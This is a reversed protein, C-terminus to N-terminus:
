AAFTAGPAKMRRRRRLGVGAAAAIVLLAVCSTIWGATWSGPEYRFEVRRAGAPVSVGRILYDVRHIPREAGDVTAKWGPFWSDTLVLLAPRAVRTEIVVREEDYVAVRARGPSESGAGEGVSLKPLRRETVAVTRLPFDPATVRARAAEGDRAVVQRDVLFARPLAHPNEYVRADRGAYAVRFGELPPDRRNQLLNSVGFLALARLARATTAASEPCFAYNCDSSPTIVRRWLEAYREEVPFDYGRADHIGYRMAVSPTMPVALSIPALPELGAFRAPRQEQLFRLAPTTPQEAHREAIAPNYGMGAKFLDLVVLLTALAVFAAPGLRLRVRLYLLVLAAGALVLWELVSALRIVDALQEPPALEPSPTAFGWAVRLADGLVGPDVRNGIAVIALPLAFLGLALGLALRGRRAPLKAAALDDLGWGALLAVCLVTVVALRGNRTAEFGPLTQVLDFLPPLGTSVALAAVGVGAVVFRERRRRLVLAAAALMLPLAAVYYAHEELSSAFELARSSARGWWDHLFVGLLYRAPEYSDAFEGARIKRDISHDLLEAFPLLTVAALATGVALGASLTMLRAVARRRLPPSALVRGGWFLGVLVVMHFSSTPHGALFQLGVLSALGAFPLPGPRRVCIEALLCVWPLLAWVSMTTWSVWTVSWLSFGFVIGALLAGRM